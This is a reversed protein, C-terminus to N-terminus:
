HKEICLQEPITKKGLLISNLELKHTWEKFWNLAGLNNNMIM